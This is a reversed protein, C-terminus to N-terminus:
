NHDISPTLRSMGLKELVKIYAHATMSKSLKHVTVDNFGDLNM